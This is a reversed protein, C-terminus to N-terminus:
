KYKKEQQNKQDKEEGGDCGRFINEKVKRDKIILCHDNDHM